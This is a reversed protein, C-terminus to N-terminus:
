IDFGLEDEIWDIFRKADEIEYDDNSLYKRLLRNAVRFTYDVDSKFREKAAEDKIGSSACGSDHAFLGDMLDVDSDFSM